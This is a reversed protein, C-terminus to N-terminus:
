QCLSNCAHQANAQCAAVCSQAFELCVYPMVQCERPMQATCMAGCNAQTQALCNQVLSQCPVKISVPREVIGYVYDKNHCFSITTYFDGAPQNASLTGSWTGNAPNPYQGAVITRGSNRNANDYRALEYGCQSTFGATVNSRTGSLSFSGGQNQSAPTVTHPVSPLPYINMTIAAAAEHGTVSTCYIQFQLGTGTVNSVWSRTGSIELGSMFDTWINDVKRFLGCFQANQSSWSFTVTRGITLDAHRNGDSLQPSPSNTSLTFSTITPIIPTISELSQTEVAVLRGDMYIYEKLGDAWLRPVLLLCLAIVIMVPVKALVLAARTSNNFSSIHAPTNVSVTGVSFQM